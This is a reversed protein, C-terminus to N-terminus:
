ERWEGNREMAAEATIDDYRLFFRSCLYAQCFNIRVFIRKKRGSVLNDLMNFSEYLNVQFLGCTFLRPAALVRGRHAAFSQARLSIAKGNTGNAMELETIVLTQPCNELDIKIKIKQM